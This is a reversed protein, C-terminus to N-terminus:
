DPAYELQFEECVVKMDEDFSLGAEALCGTFFDRHAERWWALSRDGEGELFAHEASVDRFPVVTVRETRIVCVAREGGDLIVSYDGPRPLEEEAGPLEYLPLASATARKIGRLTLDALKDPAGGFAWITCRSDPDVKRERCFREWLEAGTM